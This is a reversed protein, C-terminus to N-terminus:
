KSGKEFAEYMVDVVTKVWLNVSKTVIESATRYAFRGYSVRKSMGTNVMRTYRYRTTGRRGHVEAKRPNAGLEALHYATTPSLTSKKSLKKRSTAAHVGVGQTGVSVRRGKLLAFNFKTNPAASLKENISENWDPLINERTRKYIEPRLERPLVKMALIVAQLQRDDKVSIM